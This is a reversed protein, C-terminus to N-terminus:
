WPSVKRGDNASDSGQWMDWMARELRSNIRWNVCQLLLTNVCWHILLLEALSRTSLDYCYYHFFSNQHHTKIHTHPPPILVNFVICIYFGGMHASCSGTQFIRWLFSTHNTSWANNTTCKSSHLIRGTNIIFKVIKDSYKPLFHSFTIM